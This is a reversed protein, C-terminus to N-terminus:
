LFLFSSQLTFQEQVPSEQNQQISAAKKPTPTIISIHHALKISKTIEYESNKFTSCAQASTTNMQVTNMEMSIARSNSSLSQPDSHTVMKATKVPVSYVRGAVSTENKFAPSSPNKLIRKVIKGSEDIPLSRAKHVPVPFDAANEKSNTEVTTSLSAFALEELYEQKWITVVRKFRFVRLMQLTLYDIRKQIPNRYFDHNPLLSLIPSCASQFEFFPLVSIVLISLLLTALICLLQIQAISLSKVAESATLQSLESLKLSSSVSPLVQSLTIISSFGDQHYTEEVIENVQIPPSPSFDLLLLAKFASQISQLFSQHNPSDTILPVGSFLLLITTLTISIAVLPLM